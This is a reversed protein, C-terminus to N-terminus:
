LHQENQEGQVAVYTEHCGAAAAAMDQVFTAPPPVGWRRFAALSVEFAELPQRKDQQVRLREVRAHFREWDFRVVHPTKM